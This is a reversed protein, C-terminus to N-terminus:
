KTNQLARDYFGCNREPDNKVSDAATRACEFREKIDDTQQAGSLVGFRISVKDAFEEGSFVDSLFGSILQAYNDQHPCYLLFTDDEERCSIGGTQRALKKLGAGIRRLVKETFQRGYQKSVSQFRNVVCAVADLATERYLHDLRSVYRFFYDKNLLGTIKDRETYQILERNEALEICKDIRAKVIEVDPFPKPIFDMAGIRLCDLEAEQDVTLIIVPITMLDEDIQMRTIVERGDMNPMQLDLLVLDIEDKHSRLTELAEVGDSAYSIDYEEALLDGMIERNMEIDDVILIHKRAHIVPIYDSATEDDPKDEKKLITEKLHQKREYMAKDAEEAVNLLSRHKDRDFESMGASVTEGIRIKSRDKPTANIQNLLDNRRSYDEGSLIVIFEDGGTRFVPSHDFIRCIKKCANKICVDGEKHGYLDNVAKLNNVDCVVVAFPEQTGESIEKNIKEEWQVYANKNKVGTLSDVTAMKRAASLNRVYEQEQRIQADEDLLGIILITKGDEEIKAAKLRVYTPLDGSMLRYDLVFIGDRNIAALINEKTVQSHFVAQDEPHITRLSNEYATSFFDAGQKSIGLEEYERSASFETYQGSELDVYYLVILNGNLATLRQYTKREEAARAAAMRDKVQTDVNSVGIIIHQQDRKIKMSVYVPKGDILLRYSYIVSGHKEIEQLLKEKNMRDIFQERDKEYVYIRANKETESFFHSGHVGNMRNEKDTRFGYEIFDDTELDVYFLNFYDEALANVVSEYVAGTNLAEQYAAKTQENEKRIRVVETVDMCMSLLCLRGTEDIFKLKTTQLQKQNGAADSVDEFFTYPEEMSLAKQDDEAFHRATVPDFIESDTLGVVGSPNEKQAYEAFAQNCALYVGTQADKYFSMAPMHNLLSNLSEKQNNLQVTLGDVAKFERIEERKLACVLLMDAAIGIVSVIVKQMNQPTFRTFSYDTSFFFLTYGLMIAAAVIGGGYGFLASCLVLGAILIMNPNPINCYYVFLILASMIVTTIVIKKPLSVQLQM